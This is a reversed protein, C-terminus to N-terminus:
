NLHAGTWSPLTNWVIMDYDRLKQDTLGWWTSFNDANLKQPWEMHALKAPRIKHFVFPQKYPMRIFRVDM